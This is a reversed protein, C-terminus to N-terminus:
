TRAPQMPARKTKAWDKVTASSPTARKVTAATVPCVRLPRSTSRIPIPGAPFLGMVPMRTSPLTSVTAATAHATDGLNLAPSDPSCSSRGTSSGSRAPNRILKWCAM